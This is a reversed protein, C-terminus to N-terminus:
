INDSVLRTTSGSFDIEGVKYNISASFFITSTLKYKAEIKGDNNDFNIVILHSSDWCGGKVGKTNDVLNKIIVAVCIGEEVASGLEWCYVSSIAGGGFYLKTYEKFIKNFSVEMERVEKTPFRLEEGEEPSPFYSNSVNSRYYDGDRNYECTLFEGKIDEKSIESPQDIKQLFENLLEDNEYVLSTLAEVVKKISSIPFKRLIQLCNKLKEEKSYEINQEQQEAQQNVLNENNQEDVVQQQTSDETNEM